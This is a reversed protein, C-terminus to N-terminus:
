DPCTYALNPLASGDGVPMDLRGDALQQLFDSRVQLQAASLRAM